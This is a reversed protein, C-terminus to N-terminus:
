NIPVCDTLTVGTIGNGSCFGKIVMKQGNAIAAGKDRMACQIGAAPDGTQLVIMLGGDQNKNVEGVTGSVQIAKNLYKADAAKEDANYEKSLAEATISTGVINEVKVAPKNWLYIVMVFCTATFLFGILSLLSYLAYAKKTNYKTAPSAARISIIGCILAVPAAIFSGLFFCVTAALILLLGSTKPFKISCGGLVILLLSLCSLLAPSYFIQTISKDFVYIGIGFIGCLLLQLMGSIMALIPAFRKM